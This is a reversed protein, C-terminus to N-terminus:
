HFFEKANHAVAVRFLLILVFSCIASDGYEAALYACQSIRIVTSATGVTVTVTGSRAAGANESLSVVITDGSEGSSTSLSIWSASASATWNESAQIVFSESCAIDDAQLWQAQAEGNVLAADGTVALFYYTYMASHGYQDYATIYLKQYSSSYAKIWTKPIVFSYHTSGDSYIVPEIGSYATTDISYRVAQDVTKWTITMDDHQVVSPSSSSTSLSPTVLTMSGLVPAQTVSLTRSVSGYTLTVTGNRVAGTTNKELYLRFKSGTEKTSSSAGYTSLTIWSTNSVVKYDMSSYILFQNTKGEAGVLMACHDDVEYPVYGLLDTNYYVEMDDQASQEVVLWAESDSSTSAFTVVGRRASGTTNAAASITISYTGSTGSTKSVTLWSADKTVKWSTTAKLTQTTSQAATGAIWRQMVWGGLAIDEYYADGDDMLKIYYYSTLEGSTVTLRYKANGVLGENSLEEDRM